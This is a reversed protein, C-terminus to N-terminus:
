LRSAAPAIMAASGVNITNKMRRLCNTEPNVSPEVFPQAATPPADNANCRHSALGRRADHVEHMLGDRNDDVHRSAHWRNNMPTCWQRAWIGCREGRHRHAWQRVTRKVRHRRQLDHRLVRETHLCPRTQLPVSRATAVPCRPERIAFHVCGTTRHCRHRVISDGFKAEFSM